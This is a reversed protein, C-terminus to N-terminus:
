LPASKVDLGLLDRVKMLTQKDAKTLADAIVTVSEPHTTSKVNKIKDELTGEKKTEKTEKISENVKKYISFDFWKKMSDKLKQFDAAEVKPDAPKPDAEENLRDTDEIELSANQKEGQVPTGKETNETPVNGTAAEKENQDKKETTEEPTANVKEMTANKDKYSPFQAANTVILDTTFKDINKNFNKENGDFLKKLGEPSDSFIEGFTFTEKGLTKSAATIAAYMGMLNDKVVKKLGPLDKATKLGTTLTNQHVKLYNAMILEMQKPDKTKSLKNNLEDVPKKIEDSVGQLLKSFLNKLSDWLGENLREDRFKNYNTIM